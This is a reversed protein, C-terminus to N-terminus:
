LSIYGWTCILFPHYFSMSFCRLSHLLIVETIKQYILVCSKLWDNRTNWPCIQYMFSVVFSISFRLILMTLLVLAKWKAEFLIIQLVKLCVSCDRLPSGDFILFFSLDAWCAKWIRMKKYYQFDHFVLTYAELFRSSLEFMTFQVSIQPFLVNWFSFKLNTWFESSEPSSLNVQMINLHVKQLGFNDLRLVRTRKAQSPKLQKQMPFGSFCRNITCCWLRWMGNCGKGIHRYTTSIYGWFYSYGMQVFFVPMM